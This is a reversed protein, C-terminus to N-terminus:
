NHCCTLLVPIILLPITESAGQNKQIFSPNFWLMAKAGLSAFICYQEEFM